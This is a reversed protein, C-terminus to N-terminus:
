VGVSEASNKSQGLRKPSFVCITCVSRRRSAGALRGGKPKDRKHKTKGGSPGTDSSTPGKPAHILWWTKAAECAAMCAYPSFSAKIEAYLSHLRWIKIVNKLLASPRHWM